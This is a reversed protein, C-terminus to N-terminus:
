SLNIVGVYQSEGLAVKMSVRTKGDAVVILDYEGSNAPLHDIRFEGFTDTIADAITKENQSLHVKAGEVCESHDIAETVVTGGVFCHTFLHLNKYYVRPKLGKEPALVELCEADAIRKMEEDSVKLSKLAGTPCAQEARTKTWGDDLLHADFIWKQPLQLEENWYISGYPCSSVIQRQAKAKVPDIIVIGDPRKYVAGNTGAPICPAEDCQNCMVPMAHADVIPFAGREKFRMDLWNHGHLPQPAAYGPYDNGIHEDKTALFCNHCNHCKAVDVIM